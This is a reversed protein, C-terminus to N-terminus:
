KIISSTVKFAGKVSAPSEAAVYIVLGKETRRGMWSSGSAIACGIDLALSTKGSNSAGFIVSSDGTTLLGELIEDPPSFTDPLDDAFTISLPYNFPPIQM